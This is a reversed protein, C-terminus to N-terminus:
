ENMVYAFVDRADAPAETALWYLGASPKFLFVKGYPCGKVVISKKVMARSLEAALEKGKNDFFAQNYWATPERKSEVDLDIIIVSCEDGFVADANHKLESEGDLSNILLHLYDTTQSRSIHSTLRAPLPNRLQLIAESIPLYM